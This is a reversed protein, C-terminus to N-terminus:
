PTLQLHLAFAYAMLAVGVVGAGIGAYFVTRSRVLAAVSALAIGVQAAFGAYVLQDREALRKGGDKLHEDREAAKDTATKRLAPQRARLETA